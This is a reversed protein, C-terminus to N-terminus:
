KLKFKMTVPNHDTYSFDLSHGKIDLVEINDSILYGDIVATFNEDKVYSTAVSRVTPVNEDAIWIFGKPVFDEPITQLWDPWEETTKFISPDTTPILHNWDGGVIIYNGREYEKTIYEKLFKLQQVRINGGKDYASLHNNILILEKGNELPLRSELICRDLEALQRPWSEKGPLQHRNTSQINYKSLTVLGASNVKGHPKLLPVPVWLTKYNIAFSSSHDKFNEKLYEYQDINFSRTANTDVEQIFVFTSDKDVLFKTINELNELTKERSSSRSGTGGDMFFDQEKDMGCYGINYTTVTAIEDIPLKEEQQNEIELSIIDEPRYDTITMLLLYGLLICIFALVIKFLTKFGKKM